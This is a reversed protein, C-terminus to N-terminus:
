LNYIEIMDTKELRYILENAAIIIIPTRFAMQIIRQPLQTIIVKTPYNWLVMQVTNISTELIATLALLLLLGIFPRKFKRVLGGSLGWLMTSVTFLNWFTTLVNLITKFLTPQSFVNWIGPRTFTYVTDTLFGIFLGYFPGFFYGSLVLTIPSFNLFRVTTLNVSLLKLVISLASFVAMLAIHRVRNNM